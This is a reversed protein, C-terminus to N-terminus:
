GPTAIEALRHMHEHEIGDVVRVLEVTLVTAEARKVWNRLAETSCGLKQAISRITEWCSGYRNEHEFVMRVARERVEQSYKGTGAM